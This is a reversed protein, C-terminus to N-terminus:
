RHPRYFDVPDLIDSSVEVDDDYPRCSAFRCQALRFLVEAQLLSPVGDECLAIRNLLALRAKHVYLTRLQAVCLDNEHVCTRVTTAQPNLLNCLENDSRCIEDVYHVLYGHRQLFQLWRRQTDLAM